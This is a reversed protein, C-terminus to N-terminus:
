DEVRSTDNKKRKRMELIFPLQQKVNESMADSGFECKENKNIFRICFSLCYLLSGFSTTKNPDINPTSFSTDLQLQVSNSVPQLSLADAVSPNVKHLFTLCYALLQLFSQQVEPNLQTQSENEVSHSRKLTKSGREDSQVKEGSFSISLQSMNALSLSSFPHNLAYQLLNPRILYAIVSHCTKSVEIVLKDYSYKHKAIWVIRVSVLVSLFSMIHNATELATLSPSTRLDILCREIEHVHTILFAVATDAFYYKLSLLLSTNLKTTLEFLKLWSFNAEKSTQLKPDKYSSQLASTIEETVNALQLMDAISSNSLLIFTSIVTEALRFGINRKILTCLLRSLSEILMENKIVYLLVKLDPIINILYEFVSLTVVTLRFENENNSLLMQKELIRLSYQFLGSWPLFWDKFSERVDEKEDSFIKLTICMFTQLSTLFGFTLTEKLENAIYLIETTVKIWEDGSKIATKMWKRLVFVLTDALHSLLSHNLEKKQRIKFDLSSVINSVILCKTEVSLQFPEFKSLSVLFDRWSEFFFSVDNTDNLENSCGALLQNSIKKLNDKKKLDEFIETLSTDFSEKNLEKVLFVERALIRLVYGCVKEDFKDEDTLLPFCLLKWMNNTKKLSNIALLHSQLWFTYLFKISAAQLEPPCFYKQNMKEELIELVTKLCSSTEESNNNDGDINLFMEILGPQHKICSSLFDLIAVKLRLDETVAELRYLFHDKVSEAESGLCALLSMPFHKSLRKLLTVALTALRLDHHQFIYHSLVLVMNPKSPNTSFLSQEIASARLNSTSSNEKEQLYLLRSLVSLSQRVMKIMFNEILVVDSGTNEVIRRVETEGSVIIELLTAGASNNLLSLKCVKVLTQYKENHSNLSLTNQFIKLCLYGILQVDRSQNYKWRQHSPFIESVVHILPALYSSDKLACSVSLLKLYSCCLQYEGIICEEFAIIEGVKSANTDHGSVISSEDKTLGIMYPFFGSETIFEWVRIAFNDDNSVLIGFLELLAAIYLRPVHPFRTFLRFGEFCLDIISAIKRSFCSPETEIIKSVLKTILILEDISNEDVAAYFGRTILNLRESYIHTFVVFADISINQWEIVYKSSDNNRQKLRGTADKKIILKKNGFLFRDKSSIFISQENTPILSSSSVDVIELYTDLNSLEQILMECSKTEMLSCCLSLFINLSQPFNERSKKFAIWLGNDERNKLLQTAVNEDLFLSNLIDYLIELRNEAFDLGYILFSVSFLDAIINKIISEVTTGRMDEFLDFKLQQNIYDFLKLNLATTGLHKILNPSPQEIGPLNWSRVLMWSLLIPAYPQLSATLSLIKDDLQRFKEQNQLLYHDNLDQEMCKYFSDLQLCEVIIMSELFGVFKLCSDLHADRSLHFTKEFVPKATFGHIQFLELLELVNVITPDVNQFYLLLLQLIESQEKVNNEIWRNVISESIHFGSNNRNPPQAFICEKFQAILQSLLRDKVNSNNLFDNFIQKYPHESDQKWNSIIQKLSFLAFLRESYYFDWLTNLLTQMSKESNFFLKISKPTGKYEYLLYSLFLEYAQLPEIELLSALKQIFEASIEEINNQKLIDNVESVSKAKCKNYYLIGNILKSANTSLLSGIFEKSKLLSTGSLLVWINRSSQPVISSM